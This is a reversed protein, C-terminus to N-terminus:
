RKCQNHGGANSDQGDGHSEHCDGPLVRGDGRGVSSLLNFPHNRYLATMQTVMSLPVSLEEEQIDFQQALFTRAADNVALKIAKEPTVGILNPLLGVGCLFFDRM